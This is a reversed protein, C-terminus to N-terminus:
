AESGPEKVLENPFLCFDAGGGAVFSLWAFGFADFEVISRCAGVLSFLREQDPQPLGSACSEVSLIRVMDGVGISQGAHDQSALPFGKPMNAPVNSM